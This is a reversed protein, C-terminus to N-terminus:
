ASDEDDDELEPVHITPNKAQFRAAWLKFEIRKLIGRLDRQINVVARTGAVAVTIVAIASGLTIWTNAGITSVEPM